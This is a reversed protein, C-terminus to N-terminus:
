SSTIDGAGGFQPGRQEVEPPNKLKLEEFTHAAEFIPSHQSSRRELDVTRQRQVVLPSEARRIMRRYAIMGSVLDSIRRPRLIRANRSWSGFEISHWRRFFAAPMGM